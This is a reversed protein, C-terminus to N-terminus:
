THTLTARVQEALQHAFAERSLKLQTRVTPHDLEHVAAAPLRKALSALGGAITALGQLARHYGIQGSIKGIGSCLAALVDARDHDTLAPSTAVTAGWTEFCPGLPLLLAADTRLAKVARLPYHRHGEAAVLQYVQKARHFVGAFRQPGEHALEAFTRRDAALLAGVAGTPWHSLGQDVDGVNHTLIWALRTLAVAHEDSGDRAAQEAAVYARAERALEDQMWTRAEDAIRQDGALLAAGLAGGAVGLWEGHHGSVPGEGTFEVRTSVGTTSWAFAQRALQWRRHLAEGSQRRWLEGRIKNDVDTPVYSGVSAHHAALCLALYDERTESSPKAGILAPGAALVHLWGTPGVGVLRPRADPTRVAAIQPTLFPCSSAIWALLQGPGIMGDFQDAAPAQRSTGRTM